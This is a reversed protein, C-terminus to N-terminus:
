SSRAAARWAAIAGLLGGGGAMQTHTNMQMSATMWSLEGAESIVSENPDLLLELVPM